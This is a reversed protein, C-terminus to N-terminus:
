RDCSTSLIAHFLTFSYMAVRVRGEHPAAEPDPALAAVYEANRTAALPVGPGIVRARSGGPAGPDVVRVWGDRAEVTLRELRVAARVGLGALTTPDLTPGDTWPQAVLRSTDTLDGGVAGGDRDVLVWPTTRDDRADTPRTAYAAHTGDSTWRVRWGGTRLDTGSGCRDGSCTNDLDELIPIAVGRVGAVDGVPFSRRMLEESEVELEEALKDWTAAHIAEGRKPRVILANGWALRRWDPSPAVDWVSNPGWLGDGESVFIVDSPAPGRTGVADARVLLACGDRSRAWRVRRATDRGSTVWRTGASTVFVDTQRSAPTGTRAPYRDQTVTARRGQTRLAAAAPEAEAAPLIDVRWASDVSTSRTVWAEWGFAALSDRLTAARASDGLAAVRIVPASDASLTLAPAPPAPQARSSAGGSDGRPGASKPAARDDDSCAVAVAGVVLCGGLSAVARGVILPTM